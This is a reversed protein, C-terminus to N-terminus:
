LGTRGHDIRAISSFKPVTKRIRPKAVGGYANAMLVDRGRIEEVVYGKGAKGRKRKPRQELGAESESM